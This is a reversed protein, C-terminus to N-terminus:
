EILSFTLAGGLEFRDEEVPTNETITGSRSFTMM